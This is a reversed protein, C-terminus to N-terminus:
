SDDLDLYKLITILDTKRNQIPTGTLAWRYNSPISDIHSFIKTKHNRFIHAEDCIIRDFKMM